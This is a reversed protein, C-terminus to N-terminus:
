LSHPPARPASGSLAPSGPDIADTAVTDIPATQIRLAVPEVSQIGMPQSWCLTQCVPCTSSDHHSPGPAKEVQSGAHGKCSREHAEKADVDRLHILPLIAQSLFAGVFFALLGSSLISRRRDARDPHRQM